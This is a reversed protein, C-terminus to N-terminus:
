GCAIQANINIRFSFYFLYNPFIKRPRTWYSLMRKEMVDMCQFNSIFIHNPVCVYFIKSSFGSPKAGIGDYKGCAYMWYIDWYMSIRCKQRYLLEFSSVFGVCVVALYVWSVRKQYVSKISNKVLFKPNEDFKLAFIEFIIKKNLNSKKFPAFWLSIGYKRNFDMSYWLHLLLEFHRAM